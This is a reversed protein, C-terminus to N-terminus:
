GQESENQGKEETKQGEDKMIPRQQLIFHINGEQSSNVLKLADEPNLELTVSSYEVYPEETDEPNVMKRGVALVRAKKLIFESVVKAEAGVGKITKTLIVDVEDEPEILNTVSQNINVGVSVARHGEKLKRSVYTIEEKEWILRHSLIQEDKVILATAIKGIIDEKNKVSQPHANSEDVQVIQLKEETIRENKEIQENAVVIEVKNPTAVTTATKFQKMYVFFLATTVLAMVLALLLVVKSRM